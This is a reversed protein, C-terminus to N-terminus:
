EGAALTRDLAALQLSRAGRPEAERWNVAIGNTYRADVSSVNDIRQALAGDYVTLFRELRGLVDDAGLAVSLGSDFEITWEGIDNERLAAVRLNRASLVTALTKYVNMAHRGGAAACDLLPLDGVDEDSPKIVDGESNLVGGGGWRAVFIEKAV